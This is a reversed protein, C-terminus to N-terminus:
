ALLSSPSDILVLFSLIFCAVTDDPPCKGFVDNDNEV